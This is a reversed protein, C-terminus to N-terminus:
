GSRAYSIRADVQERVTTMQKLIREKEAPQETSRFRQKLEELQEQLRAFRPDQNRLIENLKENPDRM